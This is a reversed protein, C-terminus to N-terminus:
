QILLIDQNNTYSPNLANLAWKNRGTEVAVWKSDVWKLTSTFNEIHTQLNLFTQGDVNYISRIQKYM